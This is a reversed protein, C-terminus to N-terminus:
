DSLCPIVEYNVCTLYRKKETETESIEEVIREGCPCELPVGWDGDAVAQRWNDLKKLRAM